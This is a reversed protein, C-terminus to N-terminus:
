PSLGFLRSAQEVDAEDVWIVFQDDRTCDCVTCSGASGIHSTEVVVIGNARGFAIIAAMEEEASAWTTGAADWANGCQQPTVTLAVTNACAEGVWAEETSAGCAGVLYCRAVAEADRDQCTVCDVEATGGQADDDLSFSVVGYCTQQECSSYIPTSITLDFCIDCGEEEVRLCPPAPTNGNDASCDTWVVTGTQSDSCVLCAQNVADAETGDGQPDMGALEASLVECRLPSPQACQMESSGDSLPCSLCLQGQDNTTTSCPPPAACGATPTSPAGQDVVGDNDSDVYESPDACVFDICAQGNLCDADVSCAVQECSQQECIVAIPRGASECVLCIQEVFMLISCTSAAADLDICNSTLVAGSAATCTQCATGEAIVETCGTITADTPTCRRVVTNDNDDVCEVCSGLEDAYTICSRPEDALTCITSVVVGDVSCEECSSSGVAYGSCSESRPQCSSRILGGDSNFCNSCVLDEGTALDPPPATGECYALQDNGGGLCSDFILEGGVSVCTQCARGNDRSQCSVSEPQGCVLGFGCDSCREGTEINDYAVCPESQRRGDETPSSNEEAVGGPIPDRISDVIEASCGVLIAATLM